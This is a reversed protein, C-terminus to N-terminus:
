MLAQWQAQTRIRGRLSFSHLFFLGLFNYLYHTSPWFASLLLVYLLVPLISRLLQQHSRHNDRSPKNLCQTPPLFQPYRCSPCNWRKLSLWCPSVFLCVFKSIFWKRAVQCWVFTWSSNGKFFRSLFTKFIIDLRAKVVLFAWIALCLGRSRRLDGGGILRQTLIPIFDVWELFFGRTLWRPTVASPWTRTYLGRGGGFESCISRREWKARM